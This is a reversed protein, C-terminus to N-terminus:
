WGPTCSIDFMDEVKIQLNVKWKLISGVGNEIPDRLLTTKMSNIDTSPSFRIWDHHNLCQTVELHYVGLFSVYFHFFVAM